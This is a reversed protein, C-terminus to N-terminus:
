WAGTVRLYFGSGSAEAFPGLERATESFDWGVGLDVHGGLRWAVEALLGHGLPDAAARELAALLRYELAVRLERWARVGLRNLFLLDHAASPGHTPGTDLGRRHRYVAKETLELRPSLTM